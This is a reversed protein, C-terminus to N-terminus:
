VKPKNPLLPQGGPADFDKTLVFGGGTLATAGFLFCDHFSPFAGSAFMTGIFGVLAAGMLVWGIIETKVSGSLM